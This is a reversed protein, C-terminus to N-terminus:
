ATERIIARHGEALTPILCSPSTENRGLNV